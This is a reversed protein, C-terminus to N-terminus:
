DKVHNWFNRVLARVIELMEDWLYSSILNGPIDPFPYSRIQNFVAGTVAYKGALIVRLKTSLWVTSAPGGCWINGELLPSERFWLGHEKRYFSWYFGIISSHHLMAARNKVPRPFNRFQIEVLCNIFTMISHGSQGSRNSRQITVGIHISASIQSNWDPDRQITHLVSWNSFKIRKEPMTERPTFLHFHHLYVYVPHNVTFPIKSVQM